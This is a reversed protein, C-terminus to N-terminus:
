SDERRFGLRKERKEKGRSRWINERLTEEGVCFRKREKGVKGGRGM